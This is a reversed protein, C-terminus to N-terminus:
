RRSPSRRSGPWGSGRRCRARTCSAAARCRRTRRTCRSSAARVAAPVAAGQAPDRRPAVPKGDDTFGLAGADRLEAMETLAEGGLGRTISPWSASPCARRARAGARAAVAAGAGLRGGPRHQADRGRRRLRGRGRRATGTDLDEKHEQGPTRLHVHPDVFGPFLHRGEGDIVEAGDAPLTGPAGLEAIEGAASSCTTRRTSGAARTSCTPAASSCTPPRRRGRPRPRMVGAGADLGDRRGATSGRGALLEYLVAMRVVVGAEVQQGIIAQPSDIVEAALEVGRNVPGPHMLVQRPGLRRGDIQYRAAYERLSPVFADTMRENQM